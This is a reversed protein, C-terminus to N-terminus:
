KTILKQIMEWYDSSRQEERKLREELDEKVRKLRAIEQYLEILEKSDTNYKIGSGIAVQANSNGSAIANVSPTTNEFMSTDWGKNNSLIKGIHKEYGITGKIMKSITGEAIGLFEALDKQKLNNLRLFRIINNM